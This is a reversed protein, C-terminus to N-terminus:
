VHLRYHFRSPVMKEAIYKIYSPTPTTTWSKTAGASTYVAFRFWLVAGLATPSAVSRWSLWSPKGSRKEDDEERPRGTGSIIPGVLMAVAIMLADGTFQQQATSDFVLALMVLLVSAAPVEMVRPVNVQSAALKLLSDSLFLVSLHFLLPPRWSVPAVEAGRAMAHPQILARLQLLPKARADPGTAACGPHPASPQAVYRHSGSICAFSLGNRGHAAM